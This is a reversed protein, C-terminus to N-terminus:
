KSKNDKLVSESELVLRVPLPGSKLVAIFDATESPSLKCDIIGQGGVTHLVLATYIVTGDLVVALQRGVNEERTLHRFRRTGEPGLEFGVVTAGSHNLTSYVKSFLRGSVRDQTEVIMEGGSEDSGSGPGLTVIIMPPVLSPKGDLLRKSNEEEIDAMKKRVAEIEENSFHLSTDTVPKAIFTFWLDGRRGLVSKVREKDKQSIQVLRVYIIEEGRPQIHAGQLGLLELRKCMIAIAEQAIDSVQGAHRNDAIKYALQVDIVATKEEEKKRLPVGNEMEDSDSGAVDFYDRFYRKLEPAEICGDHPEIYFQGEGVPCPRIEITRGFSTKLTLVPFVSTNAKLGFYDSNLEIKGSLFKEIKDIEPQSLEEEDEILLTATEIREGPRLIRSTTFFFLMGAISVVACGIVVIIVINKTKM